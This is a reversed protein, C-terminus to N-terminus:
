FLKKIKSPNNRYVVEWMGALIGEYLDGGEEVRNAQVTKTEKTFKNQVIVTDCVHDRKKGKYPHGCRKCVAM